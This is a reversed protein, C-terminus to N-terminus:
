YGYETRFEKAGDEIEQIFAQTQFTFEFKGTAQQIELSETIFTRALELSFAVNGLEERIRTYADQAAFDRATNLANAAQETMAQAAVVYQAASIAM